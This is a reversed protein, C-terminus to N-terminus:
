QRIKIKNKTEVFTYTSLNLKNLCEGSKLLIDAIEDTECDRLLKLSCSTNDVIDLVEILNQDGMAKKLKDIKDYKNM